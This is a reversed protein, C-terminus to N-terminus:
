PHLEMYEQMSKKIEASIRLVESCFNARALSELSPEYKEMKKDGRKVNHAAQKERAGM